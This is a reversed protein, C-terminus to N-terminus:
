QNYYINNNMDDTPLAQEVNKYQKTGMGRLSVIVTQDGTNIQNANLMVHSNPSTQISILNGYSSALSSEGLGSNKNLAADLNANRSSKVDMQSEVDQGRKYGIGRDLDFEAAMATAPLLMLTILCLHLIRM